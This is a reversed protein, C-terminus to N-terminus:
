LYVALTHWIWNNVVLFLSFHLTVFPQCVACSCAERAAVKEYHFRRRRVDVSCSAVVPLPWRGGTESRVLRAFRRLGRSGIGPLEECANTRLRDVVGRPSGLISQPPSGGGVLFSFALFFMCCGHLSTVFLIISFITISHFMKSVNVSILWM